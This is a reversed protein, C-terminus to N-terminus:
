HIFIYDNIFGNDVQEMVLYHIKHQIFVIIILKTIATTITVM